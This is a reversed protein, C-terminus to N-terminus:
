SQRPSVWVLITSGPPQQRAVKDSFCATSSAGMKLKSGTINLTSNHGWSWGLSSLRDSYSQTGAAAHQENRPRAAAASSAPPGNLTRQLEKFSSASSTAFHFSKNYSSATKLVRVFRSSERSFTTSVSAKSAGRIMCQAITHASNM